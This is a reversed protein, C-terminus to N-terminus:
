RGRRAQFCDRCYVPRDGRPIFPVRTQAGCSACTAPYTQRGEGNGGYGNRSGHLRAVGLVAGTAVGFDDATHSAILDANRENRRRVRCAPCLAPTPMNHEIHFRREAPSYIFTDGCEACTLHEPDM